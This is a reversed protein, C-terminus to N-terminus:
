LFLLISQNYYGYKKHIYSAIDKAGNRAIGHAMIMKIFKKRTINKIEFSLECSYDKVETKRFDSLTDDLEIETPTQTIEKIVANEIEKQEGNKNIMILKGILEQGM